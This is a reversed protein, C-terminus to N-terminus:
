KTKVNINCYVNYLLLKLFTIFLIELYFVLPKSKPFKDWRLCKLYVILYNGSLTHTAHSNCVISFFSAM